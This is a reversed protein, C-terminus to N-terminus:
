MRDSVYGRYFEMIEEETFKIGLERAVAHWKEEDRPEDVEEMRKLLRMAWAESTIVDYLMAYSWCKGVDALGSEFQAHITEAIDYKVERLDCSIEGDAIDLLAYKPWRSRDHPVGVSGPNIITKDGNKRMYQRHSHGALLYKCNMQAFIADIKKSEGDFYLNDTEPAAHAIEVDIGGVNVTASFPHSRFFDLDYKRLHDFTFRLSGTSSGYTFISTGNECNLMYRERNGRLCVTPYCSRLEYVLDMVREPEGLDSVYDGLFVFGEANSELADDVCARLAPYNSHIDSLIAIRHVTELGKGEFVLNM